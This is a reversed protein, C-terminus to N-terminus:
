RPMKAVFFSLRVEDGHMLVFRQRPDATGGLKGAGSRRDSKRAGSLVAGISLAASAPNQWLLWIGFGVGGLASVAFAAVVCWCAAALIWLVLYFVLFLVVATMVLPLWVPSGLALLVIEWVRLKRQPKLRTKVLRPLSLEMLVEQAIEAVDGMAAVAAQEDMGEEMRDDIMEEYYRLSQQREQEPLRRLQAELATLFTQRDM